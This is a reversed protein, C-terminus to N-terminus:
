QHCISCAVGSIGGELDNGHCRRCDQLGDERARRGHFSASQPDMWGAPHGSPGGAHCDSCSVGCWGGRFDSGHCNRCYDPGQSVFADGHFPTESPRAWGPPHGGPGDHCQYCSNVDVGGRLDEGHCERCTEVGRQVVRDGHFDVSTTQTWEPPHAM